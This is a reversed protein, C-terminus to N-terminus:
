RPVLPYAHRSRGIGNTYPDGPGVGGGTFCCSGVPCGEFAATGCVWGEGDTNAETCCGQDCQLHGECTGPAAATNPGDFSAGCAVLLWAVALSAILRM